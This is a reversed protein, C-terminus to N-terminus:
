ISCRLNPLHYVISLKPSWRTILASAEYSLAISLVFTMLCLLTFAYIKYLPSRRFLRFRITCWFHQLNTRIFLQKEVDTIGKLFLNLKILCNWCFLYIFFYLFLHIWKVKAISVTWPSTGMNCGAFKFCGSHFPWSNILLFRYTWCCVMGISQVFALLWKTLGWTPFSLNDQVDM